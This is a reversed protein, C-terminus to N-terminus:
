KKLMLKFSYSTNSASKADATTILALDLENENKVVISTISIIGSQSSVMTLKDLYENYRTGDKSELGIAIKELLLNVDEIYVRFEMVSTKSDIASKFITVQNYKCFNIDGSNTNGAECGVVKYTGYVKEFPAAYATLSVLIFALVTLGKAMAQFSELSFVQVKLVASM